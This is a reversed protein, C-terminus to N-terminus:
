GKSEFHSELCTLMNINQVSKSVRKIDVNKDVDVNLDKDKLVDERKGGKIEQLIKFHSDPIENLIRLWLSKLMKPEYNSRIMKLIEYTDMSFNFSSLSFKACKDLKHKLDDM